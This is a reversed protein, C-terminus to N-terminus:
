VNQGDRGGWPNEGAVTGPWPIGESDEYKQLRHRLDVVMDLTYDHVDPSIGGLLEILFGRLATM